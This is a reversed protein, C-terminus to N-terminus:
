SKARSTAGLNWPRFSARLALMSQAALLRFVNM